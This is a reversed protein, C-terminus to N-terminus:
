GLLSAALIFLIMMRQHARYKEAAEEEPEQDNMAEKTHADAEPKEGSSDRLLGKAEDPFFSTSRTKTLREFAKRAAVSDNRVELLLNGVWMLSADAPNGGTVEPMDDSKMVKELNKSRRGGDAWGGGQYAGADRPGLM